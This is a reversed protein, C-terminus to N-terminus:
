LITIAGMHQWIVPLYSALSSAWTRSRQCQVRSTRSVGCPARVLLVGRTSPALAGLTAGLSHPAYALQECEM